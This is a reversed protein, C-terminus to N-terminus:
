AWNLASTAAVVGAAPHAGEVGVRDDDARAQGAEGGRRFEGVGAAAHDEEVLLALGVEPTLGEPREAAEEQDVGGLLAPHPDAVACREGPLVPEARGAEVAGLVDPGAAPGLRVDLEGRALLPGPQVAQADPEEGHDPPGLAPGAQGVAAAVRDRPEVDDPAGTRADDLRELAPHALVDLGPPHPERETVAHVRQRRAAAAHVADPHGARGPRRRRAAGRGVAVHDALERKRACATTTVLPPM